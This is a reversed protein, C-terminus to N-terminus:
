ARSFTREVLPRILDVMRDGAEIDVGADKYTMPKSPTMAM